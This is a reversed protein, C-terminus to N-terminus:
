CHRRWNSRRFFTHCVIRGSTTYLLVIPVIKFSKQPSISRFIMEISSIEDETALLKTSIKSLINWFAGDTNSTFLISGIGDREVNIAQNTRILDM